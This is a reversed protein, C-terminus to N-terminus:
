LAMCPTASVVSPLLMMGADVTPNIVTARTTLDGAATARQGVLDPGLVITGTVGTTPNADSDIADDSGVNTEVWISEVPLGSFRVKYSGAVLSDFVYNGQANTLTTAIVAGTDNNLLSVTAGPKGTEGADLVGNYNVDNFVKSGIAYIDEPKCSANTCFGIDLDLNQASGDIIDFPMTGGDAQADSDIRANSGVAPTTLHYSPPIDADALDIKVWINKQGPKLNSINFVTPADASNTGTRSTFLYGGNADTVATGLVSNNQMLRVTLNELGPENPDQIGDSNLDKWVREGIDIPAYLCLVELDGLGNAKGMTSSPMVSDSYGVSRYVDAFSGDSGSYGTPSTAGGSLTWGDQPTMSGIGGAYWGGLPDDATLVLKGGDLEAHNVNYLDARRSQSGQLLVMSGMNSYQSWPDFLSETGYATNAGDSYGNFYGGTCKSEAWGSAVDGEAAWGTATPCARVIGPSGGAPDTRTTTDSMNLNFTWQGIQDRYRNRLGVLMDRDDFIISSIMVQSSREQPWAAAPVSTPLVWAASWPTNNSFDGTKEFSWLFNLVPTPSAVMTIPDFTYVYGRPDSASAGAQQSCVVGVYGVGDHITVAMPRSDSDACKYSTGSAALPIMLRPVDTSATPQTVTSMKYLHRDAMNVVFLNAGDESVDIDGLSVKGVKDYSEVDHGWANECATIPGTHVAPNFIRTGSCGAAGTPHPDTGATDAGFLANLDAWISVAKTGTGAGAIKYIAGTGGPGFGVHRRMYAAAFLSQRNPDWALGFTAGIQNANAESVQQPADGDDDDDDDWASTPSDFPVSELVSTPTSSKQDGFKFCPTILRLGATSDHKCFEAPNAVSFYLKKTTTAGLTVFQVNSGSRSGKAGVVLHPKTPPIIMEVRVATSGSVPVPISFLGNADTVGTWLSGATDTVKITIGPEGPEQARLYAERLNADPWSSSQGDWGPPSWIRNEAFTSPTSFTTAAGFRETTTGTYNWDRYVIGEVTGTTAPAAPADPYTCVMLHTNNRNGSTPALYDIGTNAVPPSFNFVKGSNGGNFLIVKSFTATSNPVVLSIIRFHAPNHATQEFRLTAQPSQATSERVFTGTNGGATFRIWLGNSDAGCSGGQSPNGSFTGSEPIDVASATGSLAPLSAALVCGTVM